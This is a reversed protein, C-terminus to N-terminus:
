GGRKVARVIATCHWSMQTCIAPPRRPSSNSWAL